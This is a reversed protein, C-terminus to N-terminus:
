SADDCTRAAEAATRVYRYPEGRRRLDRGMAVNRDCRRAGLPRVTVTSM